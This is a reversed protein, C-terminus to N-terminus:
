RPPRGPAAGHPWPSGAGDFAGEELTVCLRRLWNRDPVCDSDVFALVPGRAERAGWNRAAEASTRTASKLVRVSPYHRAILEATEDTGSDAVIVEFPGADVQGVVAALCADITGASQFSPIIVSAVLSGSM